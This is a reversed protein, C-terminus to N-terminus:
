DCLSPVGRVELKAIAQKMQPSDFLTLVPPDFLNDFFNIKKKLIVGTFASSSNQVRSYESNPLSFLGKRSLVQIGLKKSSAKKVILEPIVPAERAEFNNIVEITM